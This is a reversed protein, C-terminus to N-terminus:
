EAQHIPPTPRTMEARSGHAPGGFPAHDRQRQGVPDVVLHDDVEIAQRIQQEHQPADAVIVALLIDQPLRSLTVWSVPPQWPKEM